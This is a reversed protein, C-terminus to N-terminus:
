LRACPRLSWPKISEPQSRERYNPEKKDAAKRSGPGNLKPAAVPSPLVDSQKPQQIARQAWAKSKSGARKWKVTGGWRVKNWLKNVGLRWRCFTLFHALRQPQKDQQAQPSAPAPQPCRPRLPQVGDAHQKLNTPLAAAAATLGPGGALLSFPPKLQPAHPPPDHLLSSSALASARAETLPQRSM